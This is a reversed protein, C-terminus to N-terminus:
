AANALSLLRQMLCGNRAGKKLIRSEAYCLTSYHPVFKLELAERLESWRALWEILGRYDIKFFQKLVL